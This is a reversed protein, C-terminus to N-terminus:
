LKNQKDSEFIGRLEKKKEVMRQKSMEDENQM